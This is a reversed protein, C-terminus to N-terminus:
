LYGNQKLEKFFRDATRKANEILFQMKEPELMYGYGHVVRHRFSMYKLMIEYLEHPVINNQVSVSLLEKHYAETRVIKIGKF